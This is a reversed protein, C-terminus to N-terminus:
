CLWAQGQANVQICISIYDTYNYVGIDIDNFAAEVTHGYAGGTLDRDYMYGSFSCFGWCPNYTSWGGNNWISSGDWCWQYHDTLSNGFGDTKTYQATSCYSGGGGGCCLVYGTAGSGQGHGVAHTTVTVDGGALAAAPFILMAAAILM